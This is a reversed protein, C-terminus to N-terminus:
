VRAALRRALDTEYAAMDPFTPFGHLGLCEDRGPIPTAGSAQLITVIFRQMARLPSPEGQLQPLLVDDSKLRICRIPEGESAPSTDVILDLLLDPTGADDPERISGVAVASVRQWSLLGKGGRADQLTLGRSDIGVVRAAVPALRVLPAEAADLELEVGATETGQPSEAQAVPVPATGTPISGTHAASPMEISPEPVRQAELGGASEVGSMAVSPEGAVLHPAPAPPQVADAAAGVAAQALAMLDQCTQMIVPTAKPHAAVGELVVLADEPSGMQQHLLRAYAVMANPVLPDDPAATIAEEYRSAAGQYQQQRECHVALALLDRVALPIHPYTQKHDRAARSARELDRAKVYVGVLHASERGAAAHEGKRALAEILAARAKSSGPRIKLLARLQTIAGDVDGRDLRRRAATLLESVTWTTKKPVAPALLKEELGALKIVAAAFAGFAFGGLHAWVTVGGDGGTVAMASQDLLWLPLLVYGPVHFTGRLVVMWYAFRVRTFALRVLFAGMLGAVAGSAGLLPPDGAPVVAAHALTALIGSALYFGAL